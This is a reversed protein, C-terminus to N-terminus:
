AAVFDAPNVKGQAIAIEKLKEYYVSYTTAMYPLIYIYMIGFTISGLCYWWFFSLYLVFLEGKHGDTLAISLKLARQAGLGPNEYIIYSTLSYAIGKIIGPVIFLMSWLWTWLMQWAMAGLYPGYRDNFCDFADGLQPNEGRAFKLFYGVLSVMLPMAAISAIFALPPLIVTIIGTAASVALSVLFAALFAPWWKGVLFARVDLKIQKRDLM